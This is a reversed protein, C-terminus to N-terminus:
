KLDNLLKVSDIRMEYARKTSDATRRKQIGIKIEYDYVSKARKYEAAKISKIYEFTGSALSDYPYDTSQSVIQGGISLTGGSSYMGHGAGMVWHNHAQGKETCAWTDLYYKGEGIMNNYVVRQFVGLGTNMETSKSKPSFGFIFVVLLTILLHKM